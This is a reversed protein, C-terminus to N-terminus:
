LGQNETAGPAPDTPSTPRLAARCRLRHRWGACFGGARFLPAPPGRASPKPIRLCGINFRAWGELTVARFLPCRLGAVSL